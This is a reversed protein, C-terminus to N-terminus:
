CCSSASCRQYPLWRTLRADVAPSDADIRRGLPHIMRDIIRLLHSENDFRAGTEILVGDREIFILEPSNVMVESISPDDLFSQIPGYGTLEDLVFNFLEKRTDEPLKINLQAIVREFSNIITERYRDDTPPNAGIENTITNIIYSKLKEINLEAM